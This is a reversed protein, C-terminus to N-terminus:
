SARRRRARLRSALAATSNVREGSRCSVHLPAYGTAHRKPLQEGTREPHRQELNEWAHIAHWLADIKTVKPPSLMQRSDDLSRGATLPDYLALWDEGNNWVQNENLDM